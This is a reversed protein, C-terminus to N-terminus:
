RIATLPSYLELLKTVASESISLIPAPYVGIVIILLAIPYLVAKENWKLDAFTSTLANVEGSMSKQFTKLMYVAGLIITVGAAAGMWANYQFISNILLFEGIFGSTLPLAVSGLLTIVFVTALQPAVNRIGGLSSLNTTKTRDSVIDIIYFMGLVVIGHSLMQIM